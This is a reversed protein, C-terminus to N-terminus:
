RRALRQPAETGRDGKFEAVWDFQIYLNFTHEFCVTCTLDSQESLILDDGFFDSIRAEIFWM